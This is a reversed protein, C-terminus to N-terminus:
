RMLVCMMMITRAIWGARPTVEHPRGRRKVWNIKAMKTMDREAYVRSLIVSQFSTLNVTAATHGGM